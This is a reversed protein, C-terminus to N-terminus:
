PFIPKWAWEIAARGADRTAKQAATEPLSGRRPWKRAITQGLRVYVDVTGRAAPIIDALKTGTLIM